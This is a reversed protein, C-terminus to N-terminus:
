EEDIQKWNREYCQRCVAGGDALLIHGDCYYRGCFRCTHVVDREVRRDCGPFDCDAFINYGHFREDNEMEGYLSGSETKRPM